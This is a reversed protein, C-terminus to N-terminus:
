RGDIQEKYRAVERILAAVMAQLREKDAKTTVKALLGRAEALDAEAEKLRARRRELFM